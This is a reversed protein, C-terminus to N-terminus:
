DETIKISTNGVTSCISFQVLKTYRNGKDDEAIVCFVNEDYGADCVYRMLEIGDKCNNEAIKKDQELIWIRMDNNEKNTSVFGKSVIFSVPNASGFEFVFNEDTVRLNAVLYRRSM